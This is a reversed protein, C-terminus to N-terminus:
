IIGEKKLLFLMFIFSLVSWLIMYVVLWASLRKESLKNIGWIFAAFFIPSILLIFIKEFYSM